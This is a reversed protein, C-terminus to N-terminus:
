KKECTKLEGIAEDVKSQEYWLIFDVWDGRTYIFKGTKKDVYVPAPFYDKGCKPRYIKTLACIKCNKLLFELKSELDEEAPSMRKSVLKGKEDFDLVLREYNAGGSDYVWLEGESKQDPKGLKQIVSEMTSGMPLEQIAQFTLPPSSKLNASSCSTM